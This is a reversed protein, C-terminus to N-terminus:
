REERADDIGRAVVHGDALAALKLEDGLRQVGHGAIGNCVVEERLVVRDGLRRELIRTMWKGRASEERAESRRGRLCNLSWGGECYGDIVCLRYPHVTALGSSVMALTAHDVGDVRLYCHSNRRYLSM